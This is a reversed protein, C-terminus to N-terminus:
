PQSPLNGGPSHRSRDTVLHPWRRQRSHWDFPTTMALLERIQVVALPRSWPTPSQYGVWDSHTRKHNDIVSRRFTPRAGLDHHPVMPQGLRPCSSPIDMIPSLRGRPRVNRADHCGDKEIDAILLGRTNGTWSHVSLRERGREANVPSPSIGRSASTRARANASSICPYRRM